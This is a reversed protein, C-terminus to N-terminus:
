RAATAPSLTPGPRAARRAATASSREAVCNAATAATALRERLGAPRDIDLNFGPGYYLQYGNADTALPSNPGTPESSTVTPAPRERTTSARM